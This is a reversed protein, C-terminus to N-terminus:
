ATTLNPEPYTMTTGDSFEVEYRKATNVIVNVVRGVQGERRKDRARGTELVDYWPLKVKVRQGIEFKM